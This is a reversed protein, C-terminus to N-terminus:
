TNPISEYVWQGKKWQIAIFKFPHCEAAVKIRVRAAERWHGKTEHCEYQGKTNVVGFDPTYWAGTALKVRIPQWDWWLIEDARLQLQLHDAYKAELKNMKPKHFVAQAIIHSM